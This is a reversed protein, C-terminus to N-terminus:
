PRLMPAIAECSPMPLPDTWRARFGFVSLSCLSSRAAQFTRQGRADACMLRVPSIRRSLCCLPCGHDDTEGDDEGDSESDQSRRREDSVRKIVSEPAYTRPAVNRREVVRVGAGGPDGCLSRGWYIPRLHSPRPHRRVPHDDTSRLVLVLVSSSAGIDRRVDRLASLDRRYERDPSRRSSSRNSPRHLSTARM